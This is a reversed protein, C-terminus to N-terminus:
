DYGSPNSCKIIDGIKLDSPDNYVPPQGLIMIYDPIYYKKCTYNSDARLRKSISPYKRVNELKCLFFRIHNGVIKQSKRLNSWNHYNKFVKRMRIENDKIIELNFEDEIDNGGETLLNVKTGGYFFYGKEDKHINKMKNLMKGVLEIADDRNFTFQKVM